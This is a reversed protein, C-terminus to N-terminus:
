GTDVRRRVRTIHRQVEEPGRAPFPDLGYHGRRRVPSSIPPNGFRATLARLLFRWYITRRYSTRRTWSPNLLQSVATCDDLGIGGDPKDIYIRLIRVGGQGTIEVEVLEYGQEEIDVEFRSWFRRVLEEKSM